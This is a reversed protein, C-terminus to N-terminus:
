SPELVRTKSVIAAENEREKRLECLAKAYTLLLSAVVSGAWLFAIAYGDFGLWLVIATIPISVLWVLLIIGLAM